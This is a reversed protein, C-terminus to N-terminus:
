AARFLRTRNLLLAIVAILVCLVAALLMGLHMGTILTGAGTAFAGLTAIGLTIGFQRSVNVTAAATGAQRQGAVSVALINVPGISLGNGIGLLVFLLSLLATNTHADVTLLGLLAGADVLYGLVLLRAAGFRATLRGVLVNGAGVALVYPLFQVGALIASLGRGQQLYVSLIFFPSNAAFGQGFGAIVASRFVPEGFLSVPLMPHSSRREALVFVAGFVLAVALPVLVSVDAWGAHGANIVAFTLAFLWIMALLQTLPNLPRNERIARVGRRGLVCLALVFIGIPVNIWFNVPWGFRETLIGGLIPGLALAVSTSLAMWAIMKARRVPDPYLQALLALAGPVTVCGGLGQLVRGFLLVGVTGALACVVSGITFLAVGCGFVRLRGFRDAFLGGTITAACLVLTFSDIVWSAGSLTMRLDARIAPAALVVISTDLLVIFSSGFLAILIPIPARSLQQRNDLATKETM